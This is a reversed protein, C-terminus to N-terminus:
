INYTPKNIILAPIILISAIIYRLIIVLGIGAGLNYAIKTLPGIFGYFIGAGIACLTGIIPM